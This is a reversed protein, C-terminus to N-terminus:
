SIPSYSSPAAPVGPPSGISENIPLVFSERMIFQGSIRRGIMRRTGERVMEMLMHGAQQGMEEMPQTVVSLSPHSLEAMKLGTTSVVGVEEPVRVGMKRCARIAGLAMLDGTTFVLQPPAGQELRRLMAEYGAPEFYNECDLIEVQSLPAGAEIFGEHFGVIRDMTGSAPTRNSTLIWVRRIGSDAVARGLRACDGRNDATVSNHVSNRSIQNITVWPIDWQDLLELLPAMAGEALTLVGALHPRMLKIREQFKPDKFNGIVTTFFGGEQLVIEASRLIRSLWGDQGFNFHPDPQHPWIFGIQNRTQANIGPKPRLVSGRPRMDVIGRRALLRVATHATNPSVNFQRALDRVAPLRGGASWRQRDIAKLLEEAVQQALNQKQFSLGRM